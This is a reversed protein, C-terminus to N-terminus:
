GMGKYETEFYNSTISDRAAQDMIAKLVRMYLELEEAGYQRNKEERDNRLIHGAIFHELAADYIPSLELDDDTTLIADAKRNYIVTLYEGEAAGSIIGYLPFNEDIIEEDALSGILGYPGSVAYDEISYDFGYVDPSFTYSQQLDEGFPRPYIRIRLLDQQDFVVHTVDGTTTTVRWDREMKKNMFQTSVIDLPIHKYIVTKIDILEQPLDYVSQGAVLAIATDRRFIKAERAIDNLGKNLLRLFTEDSWREADQDNVIDRVNIFIDSIRSM